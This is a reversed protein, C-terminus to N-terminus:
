PLPIKLIFSTGEGIVTNISLTGGMYEVQKKVSDLGVGRGSINDAYENTSFGSHCIAELARQMENSDQSLDLGLAEAKQLVKEVDIGRGDDAFDLVFYNDKLELSLSITGEMSKGLRLREEPLEIGHALANRLLHSLIAALDNSFESDLFIDGGTIQLHALKDQSEAIKPTARVLRSWAQNINVKTDMTDERLYENLVKEAQALALDLQQVWENIGKSSLGVTSPIQKLAKGRIYALHSELHFAAQAVSDLGMATASGHLTHVIRFLQSIEELEINMKLDFLWETRKLENSIAHAEDIFQRLAGSDEIFVRLFNLQSNLALLEQDQEVKETIEELIVLIRKTEQGYKTDARIIRYNINVWKHKNNEHLVKWQPFPNLGEMDSESMLELYFAELFQELKQQQAANMKLVQPLSKGVIGEFKPLESLGETTYALDVREELISLAKNSIEAEIKFNHDLSLLGVPITDFLLRLSGDKQWLDEYTSQLTDLMLNIANATRHIEDGKGRVRTCVDVLRLGYEGKEGALEADIVMRELRRFVLMYLIFTMFIFVLIFFITAFLLLMRNTKKLVEGVKDLTKVSQKYIERFHDIGVVLTKDGYIDNLHSIARIQEDNKVCVEIDFSKHTCTDPNATKLFMKIQTNASMKAIDLSDLLSAFVLTGRFEGYGATPLIPAIALACIGEDINVFGHKFSEQDSDTALLNTHKLKTLLSASFETTDKLRHDAAAAKVLEHNVNFFAMYNIHLNALALVDINSNEFEENPQAVYKWADDWFSWDKQKIALNEVYQELSSQARHLDAAIIDEEIRAFGWGLEHNLSQGTSAVISYVILSVLAWVFVGFLSLRWFVRFSLNSM